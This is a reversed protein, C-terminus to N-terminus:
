LKLADRMTALSKAAKSFKEKTADEWDVQLIREIGNKGLVAPVGIFLDEVGEYFGDNNIYASVCFEERTDNLIASVMKAVAFGPAVVASRGMLKTIEAGAGVTKTICEDLDEESMIDPVPKKNLTTSEPVAVMEQGHSGLVTAEIHGIKANLKQSLLYRFRASDLEGAMGIVRNQKFGTKKLVVYAMTDLPNTIVIVIANPCFQKIKESVDSIIKANVGILEERTMGPKRPFGATIVVVDSNKMEEYNTTPIIRSESNMVALAHSLDLMRGKLFDAAEPIDLAVVTCANNRAIELVANSGVGGAAGIVTVKKAM